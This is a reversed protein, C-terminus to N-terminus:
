DRVMSTDFQLLELDSILLEEGVGFLSITLGAIPNESFKWFVALSMLIAVFNTIMDSYQNMPYCNPYPSNMSLNHIYHLGAPCVWEELIHLALSIIFVGVLSKQKSINKRKLVLYCLIGGAIGGIVYLWLRIAWIILVNM